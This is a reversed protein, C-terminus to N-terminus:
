FDLKHKNYPRLHPWCAYGFVKFFTYDPKEGLLRELPTQMGVVRSPLRNILFCATSFADSWFRYPVGAHALLTLGTEVIHRHKREATGNQQHTHPCSVNHSIGIDAFFKNLKLYEGGWDSQVHIIKKNLLREVHKQFQLFVHFVDSKHKLLYLWTFRSYADIFSVYFQHGSVSTQAPGWVDSYIIELPASTVRTSLSFPLQHSKGQQCADCVVAKNVSVSPLEHLRLIHQVIPSAPHGLRSHWLDHSVKLSSFAQKVSSVDLSYLKGRTGGRLLVERSDRDKILFYWPHFEFFVNNDTTLRKVSLLNRTISPVRCIDKLHLSKTSTPILSQGVHTIRMGTGNAAQVTDKGHYPEKSTLKDLDNTFHETAGTDPYWAPDVPYSSTSGTHTVSLAALQREM